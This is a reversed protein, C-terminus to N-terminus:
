ARRAIQEDRKLRRVRARVRRDHRAAGGTARNIKAHEATTHSLEDDVRNHAMHQLMGVLQEVLEMACTECLHLLPHSQVAYASGDRKTRRMIQVRALHDRCDMCPTGCGPTGVIWLLGRNVRRLKRLSM